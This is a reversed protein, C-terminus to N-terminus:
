KKPLDGFKVGKQRSDTKELLGLGAIIDQAFSSADIQSVLRRTLRRTLDPDAEQFEDSEVDVSGTNDPDIISSDIKYHPRHNEAPRQKLRREDSPKFAEDEVPESIPISATSKIIRPIFAKDLQVGCCGCFKPKISDYSNKGGCVCYEVPM